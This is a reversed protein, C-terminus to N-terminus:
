SAVAEVNDRPNRRKYLEPPNDRLEVVDGRRFRREGGVTRISTILDRSEYDRVTQPHVGLIAAAEGIRIRDDPKQAQKATMRLVYARKPPM